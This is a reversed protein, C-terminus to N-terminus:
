YSKINILFNCGIKQHALYYGSHIPMLLRELEATCIGWSKQAIECNDIVNHTALHVTLGERKARDLLEWVTNWDPRELRDIAM